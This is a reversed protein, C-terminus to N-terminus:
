GWRQPTATPLAFRAQRQRLLARRRLVLVAWVLLLGAAVGLGLQPMLPMAIGLGGGLVWSLQLMTESRAFVSTRVHEPVDEQILADLSLKGLQQCLGVTVGLAVVFVLSYFLAAVVALVADAALTVLVVIDPRLNKLWNGAVTGVTSGVGAAGIVLGLLLDPRDEWGPFPEARLLFAMFMTLFGSLARLGVNCRLGTVVTSTFGYGLSRRSRGDMETYHVQEEGEASDVRSPLLIALVTGGVFVVFAYRLTWESGLLSLGVALPASIAGGALSALGMRSNVRVLTLGPPILRPVASSRTVQYAKSAVLVGLAAPFLVASDTVVATGLVWCLFARLAMTSGIAWRRGRRFRDLFPGILPAVIAFPLLTLALFLAVQSRAEETPVTFFLTGALAVAVASDGAANVAHLELMRALGSEGAGEAHSARRALSYAGRAGRGTARATAASAR